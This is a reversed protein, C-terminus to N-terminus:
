PIPWLGSPLRDTLLSPQVGWAITLVLSILLALLLGYNPRAVALEHEPERMYLNVVLRMYYYVSIVSNLVAVVVLGVYGNEVAARFLYLKGIFGATPPIGTLAFMFAALCFAPFPHRYAMGRYSEFDVREDQNSRGMYSIVGLAGVNIVTYIFLYFLIAQAGNESLATLGVLLYGAHSISSYALMRKVINQNIALLNGLTMTMVALVILLETCPFLIKVSSLGVLRILVIFASAKTATSMFATIPTAAGEYVDPTWMHFPVLTAKFAVGIFILVIGAYILGSLRSSSQLSNMMENMDLSGTAGYLLAMGYLLFGTAFAGLLFYKLSAEVSDLRMKRIATLVYLAISFVELGLFLVLLNWTSTLIMIGVICFLILAYFEGYQLYEEEIRNLSILITLLGALLLVVHVGIATPDMVLMQDFGTQPGGILRVLGYGSVALGLCAVIAWITRNLHRFFLPLLLLLMATVVLSLLPVLAPLNITPITFEM